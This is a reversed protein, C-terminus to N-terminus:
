GRNANMSFIYWLSLLTHSKFGVPGSVENCPFDMREAVGVILLDDGTLM